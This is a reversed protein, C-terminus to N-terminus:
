QMDTLIVFIEVAISVLHPCPHSAVPVKMGQQHSHLVACGGESLMPLKECFWINKGNSGAMVCRKYRSLLSTVCFSVAAENIITSIQFFSLNEESPPHILSAHYM